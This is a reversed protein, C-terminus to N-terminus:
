ILCFDIISSEIKMKSVQHVFVDPSGDDPTIFGFGKAVHFWKCHGRRREGRGGSPGAGGLIYVFINLNTM